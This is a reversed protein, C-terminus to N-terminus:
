GTLATLAIEGGLHAWFLHLVTAMPAFIIFACLSFSADHSEVISREPTVLPEVVKTGMHQTTSLCARADLTEDFYGYDLSAGRAVFGQSSKEEQKMCEAICRTRRIVDADAKAFHTIYEYLLHELCRM